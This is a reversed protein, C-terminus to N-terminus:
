RVEAHALPEKVKKLSKNKSKRTKSVKSGFKQSLDQMPLTPARRWKLEDGTLPYTVLLVCNTMKYFLFGIASTLDHDLLAFQLSFL